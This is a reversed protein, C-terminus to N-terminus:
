SNDSDRERMRKEWQLNSQVYKWNTVAHQDEPAIVGFFSAIRNAAFEINDSLLKVSSSIAFSGGLPFRSRLARTYDSLLVIDLNSGQPDIELQVVSDPQGSYRVQMWAPSLIEVNFGRRELTSELSNRDALLEKTLQRREAAVMDDNRSKNFTKM